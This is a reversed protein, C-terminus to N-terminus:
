KALRRRVPPTTLQRSIFTGVHGRAVLMPIMVSMAIGAVSCFAIWCAMLTGGARWLSYLAPGALVIGRIENGAVMLAIVSTAARRTMTTHRQALKSAM